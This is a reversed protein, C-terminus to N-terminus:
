QDKRVSVLEQIEEEDGGDNMYYGPRDTTSSSKKHTVWHGHSGDSGSASKQAARLNRVVWLVFIAVGVCILIIFIMQFFQAIAPGVIDCIFNGIWPIWSIACGARAKVPKLGDTIEDFQKIAAAMQAQLQLATNLSLSFNQLTENNLLALADLIKNNRAIKEAAAAVNDVSGSINNFLNNIAQDAAPIGTTINNAGAILQNYLSQVQALMLDPQTATLQVRLAAQQLNYISNVIDLITATVTSAATISIQVAENPPFTNGGMPANAYLPINPYCWQTPTDANRVNVYQLGCTPIQQTYPHGKFITAPTEYQKETASGCRPQKVLVMINIPTSSVSYFTVFGIGNVISITYNSPCGTSGVNALQGLPIRVTGQMRFSGPPAVFSMTGGTGNPFSYILNNAAAICMQSNGRRIGAPLVAGGNPAYGSIYDGCVYHPPSSGPIPVLKRLYSYPNRVCRPEIYTNSRAMWDSLKIPATSSTSPTYPEKIYDVTGCGDVEYPSLLRDPVDFIVFESLVPDTRPNSGIPWEGVLFLHGDGLVSFGPADAMVQSTFTANGNDNYSWTTLSGLSALNPDNGFDVTMSGGRKQYVLEYLPVKNQQPVSALTGDGVLVFQTKMSHYVNYDTPDASFLMPTVDLGIPPEGWFNRELQPLVLKNALQFGDVFHQWISWTLTNYNQNGTLFFSPTTTCFTTASNNALDQMKHTLGNTIRVSKGNKPLASLINTCRSAFDSYLSFLNDIPTVQQTATIGESDCLHEPEVSAPYQTEHTELNVAQAHDFPWIGTDSPSITCTNEYVAMVCTCNWPRTAPSTSAGCNKPGIWDMQLASISVTPVMKLLVKAPDCVLEYTVSHAIKSSGSLTTYLLNVQGMKVFQRAFNFNSVATSQSDWIPPVGGTTFPVLNWGFYNQLFQLSAFYQARVARSTDTWKYIRWILAMMNADNRASDMAIAALKDIQGQTLNFNNASYTLVAQTFNAEALLQNQTNYALQNFENLFVQQVQKLSNIAISLQGIQFEMQDQNFRIANIQTQENELSSRTEAEMINVQDSWAELGNVVGELTKLDKEIQNIADAEGGDAGGMLYNIFSSAAISIGVALGIPGTSIGTTVASVAAGVLVASAAGEIGATIGAGVEGSLPWEQLRIPSRARPYQYREAKRQLRYRSFQLSMQASAKAGPPGGDAMGLRTMQGIAILTSNVVHDTFSVMMRAPVVFRPINAIQQQTFVESLDDCQVNLQHVLNDPTTLVFPVPVGLESCEFTAQHYAQKTGNVVTEGTYEEILRVAQGNVHDCILLYLLCAVWVYKQMASMTRHYAHSFEGLYMGYIRQTM